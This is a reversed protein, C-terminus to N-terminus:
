TAAPQPAEGPLYSLLESAIWDAGVSRVRVRVDEDDEDGAESGPEREVLWLGGEGADYWTLEGGAVVGDTDHVCSVHLSSAGNAVAAVFPDAEPPLARAENVLADSTGQREVELLEQVTGVFEAGTPPPADTRLGVFTIVRDLLQATDFRIFRYVEEASLSQEVGFEPCVHYARLERQSGSVRACQVFLGPAMAVDFTADYPPLLVAPGDGARRIIGREELSELSAEHGEPRDDVLDESSETERRVIEAIASLEDLTLDFATDSTM